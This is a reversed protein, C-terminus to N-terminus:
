EAATAGSVWRSGLWLIHELRVYGFWILLGRERTKVRAEVREMGIILLSGAPM